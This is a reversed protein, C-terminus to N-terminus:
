RAREKEKTEREREGHGVVWTRASVFHRTSSARPLEFALFSGTQGRRKDRTPGEEEVRLRVRVKLRTARVPWRSGAEKKKKKKKAREKRERQGMRDRRDGNEISAYCGHEKNCSYYLYRNSGEVTAFETLENVGGNCPWRSVDDAVVGHVVLVRLHVVGLM